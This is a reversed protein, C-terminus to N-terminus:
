WPACYIEIPRDNWFSASYVCVCVFTCVPMLMFSQKTLTLSLICDIDNGCSGNKTKTKKKTNCKKCPKWEMWFAVTHWKWSRTSFILFLCLCCMWRLGVEDSGVLMCWRWCLLAKPTVILVSLNLVRLWFSVETYPCQCCCYNTKAVTYCLFACLLLPLLTASCFLRYPIIKVSGMNLLPCQQLLLWSLIFLKLM